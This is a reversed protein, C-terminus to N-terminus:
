IKEFYVFNSAIDVNLGILQGNEYVPVAVFSEKENDVDIITAFLKEMDGYIISYPLKGLFLKYGQITLDVGLSSKYAGDVDGSFLEGKLTHKNYNEVMASLNREFMDTTERRIREINSTLSYREINKSILLSYLYVALSYTIPNVSNTVIGIGIGNRIDYLVTSTVGTTLMGNHYYVINDEISTISTGMGYSRTGTKIVPEYIVSNKLWRPPRLHLKLFTTLDKLSTAVGGAPAYENTHAYKNEEGYLNYESAIRNKYKGTDCETSYMGVDLFFEELAETYSAYKSLCAKEFGLTFALNCYMFNERFGENKKYKFSSYATYRDYGCNIQLADNEPSIGSTHSMCDRVTVESTVFDESFEVSLSEENIKESPNGQMWAFCTASIHKSVSGVQWLTNQDPKERSAKNVVGYTKQINERSSIITLGLGPISYEELLEFIKQDVLTRFAM